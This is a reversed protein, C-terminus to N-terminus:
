RRGTPVRVTKGDSDVALPKPRAETYDLPAHEEGLLCRLAKRYQSARTDLLLDPAREWSAPIEIDMVSKVNSYDLGRHDFEVSASVKVGRVQQLGCTDAEGAEASSMGTGAPMVFVALTLFLLLLPKSLARRIV